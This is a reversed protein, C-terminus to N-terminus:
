AGVAAFVMAIAALGLVSLLSASLATGGVTVALNTDSLEWQWAALTTSWGPLLLAAAGLLILLAGLAIGLHAHFRPVAPLHVLEVRAIADLVGRRFGASLAVGRQARLLSELLDPQPTTAMEPNPTARSPPLKM